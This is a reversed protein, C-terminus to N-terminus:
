ATRGALLWVIGVLFLLEAAALALAWSSHDKLRPAVFAESCGLAVLTGLLLTRSPWTLGAFEEAFLWLTAVVCLGAWVTRLRIFEGTMQKAVV